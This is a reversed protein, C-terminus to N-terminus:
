GAVIISAGQGLRQHFEKKKQRGETRHNLGDDLKLIGTATPVQKVSKSRKLGLYEMCEGEMYLFLTEADVERVESIDTIAREVKFTARLNMPPAPYLRLTNVGEGPIVEMGWFFGDQEDVMSMADLGLLSYLEVLERQALDPVQVLSESVGEAGEPLLYDQQGAVLDIVVSWTRPKYRSFERLGATLAREVQATPLEAEPPDGLRGRVEELAEEKTLPM